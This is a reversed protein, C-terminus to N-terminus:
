WLNDHGEGQRTKQARKPAEPLTDGQKTDANATPSTIANNVRYKFLCKADIYEGVRKYKTFWGTLPVIWYLVSYGKYVDKGDVAITGHWRAIRIFLFQVILNLLYLATIKKM